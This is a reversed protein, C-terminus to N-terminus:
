QAGGEGPCEEPRPDGDLATGDHDRHGGRPGGLPARAGRLRPRSTERQPDNHGQKLKAVRELKAEVRERAECSPKHVDFQEADWVRATQDVSGTELRKGDPSITERQPDNM